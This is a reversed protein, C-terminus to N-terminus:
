YLRDRSIVSKLSTCTTDELFGVTQLRYSVVSKSVNFYESLNVMLEEVLNQNCIQHDLYLYDKSIKKEDFYLQVLLKLQSFPMLLQSAFINAQIEMRKNSGVGGLESVGIEVDAIEKLQDSYKRHLIFHGIEHAITFRTKKIDKSLEENIVIENKDYDIKGLFYNNLSRDLKIKLGYEQELFEGLYGFNISRNYFKRQSTLKLVISEIESESLYEIKIYKPKHYYREIVGLEILLDPINDFGQCGFTAVFSSSMGRRGAIKEGVELLKYELIKNKRYSIWELEEQCVVALGLKNSRAFNLAGQQFGRLSIIIGKTNHEGIQKIKSAFEEVDDVPVKDSLNKCEIITLISYEEVGPLFTEISIDVTIYGERDRSYYKKKRFIQSKKGSVFFDEEALLGKIVNYVKHEFDDGKKTTNLGM